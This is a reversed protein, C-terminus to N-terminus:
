TAFVTWQVGTPHVFYMIYQKWLLDLHVNDLRLITRRSMGKVLDEYLSYKQLDTHNLWQDMTLKKWGMMKKVRKFANTTSINVRSRLTVASPNSVVRRVGELGSRLDDVAKWAEEKTSYGTFQRKTCNVSKSKMYSIVIYWKCTTKNFLVRPNSTKKYAYPVDDVM